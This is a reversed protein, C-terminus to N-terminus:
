DEPDLDFNLQAPSQTHAPNIKESHKQQGKQSSNSHKTLNSDITNHLDFDPEVAQDEPV